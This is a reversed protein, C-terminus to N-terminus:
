DWLGYDNWRDKPIPAGIKYDFSLVNMHDDSTKCTYSLSYWEGKSRFAAGAGEFTDGEVTAAATAEAVVRDPRYNKKDKAIRTMAEYDCRQELRTGLDLEKLGRVIAADLAFSPPALPPAAVFALALTLLRPNSLSRLPKRAPEAM